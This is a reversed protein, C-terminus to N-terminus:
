HFNQLFPNQAHCTDNKGLGLRDKGRKGNAKVPSEIGQENKGLGFGTYGFKIMM